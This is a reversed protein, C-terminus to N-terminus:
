QFSPSPSINNWKALYIYIYVYICMNKLITYKGVNVMFFWGNMEERADGSFQSRIEQLAGM